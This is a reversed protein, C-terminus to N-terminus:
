TQASRPRWRPPLAFRLGGTGTPFRALPHTRPARWTSPSPSPWAGESFLFVAWPARRVCVCSVSARSVSPCGCVCVCLPSPVLGCWGGGRRGADRQYIDAEIAADVMAADAMVGALGIHQMYYTAQSPATFAWDAEGRDRDLDGCAGRVLAEMDDGVAGFREMVGARFCGGVADVTAGYKRHKKRERLLSRLLVPDRASPTARM